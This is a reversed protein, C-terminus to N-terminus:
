VDHYDNLHGKVIFKIEHPRIRSLYEWDSTSFKTHQWYWHQSLKLKTYSALRIFSSPKVNGGELVLRAIRDPNSYHCSLDILGRYDSLVRQGITFGPRYDNTRSWHYIRYAEKPTM